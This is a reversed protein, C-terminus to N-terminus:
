AVVRGVFGVGVEDGVAFIHDRAIAYDADTLHELMLPVGGGLRDLEVLYTRYDLEGKGPIIEDLHLAAQHHLVIDKAHCSVIWPGLKEFCERLLAGSEWYQRPTMILNVPDLHAAFGPRDIAKILDRYCDVSDPLSYQMMELAFKARKPKVMDLLTRVTEVCADFAERGLNERAPAYDSGAQYSGIYSVACRAGVADAVALKEAAFELNAKRVDNDPTILNRWIGVEAITVNVAAFAKEIEALRNTEGIAVPPCYAAGYGFAVHAQALAVIDENGVPLGHGGLRIM